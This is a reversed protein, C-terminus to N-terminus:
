PQFDFKNLNGTLGRFQAAIFPVEFKEHKMPFYSADIGPEPYYAIDVIKEKDIPNEGRCGLWIQNM